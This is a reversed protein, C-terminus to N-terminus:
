ITVDDICPSLAAQLPEAVALVAQRCRSASAARAASAAAGAGREREVRSEAGRGIGSLGAGRAVMGPPGRPASKVGCQGDAM